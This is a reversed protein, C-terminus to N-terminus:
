YSVLVKEASTSQTYKKENGSAKKDKTDAKKAEKKSDTKSTISKFHGSSDPIEM